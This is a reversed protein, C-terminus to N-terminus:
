IDFSHIILGGLIFVVLGDLGFYLLVSAIAKKTVAVRVAREFEKIASSGAKIADITAPCGNGAGDSM